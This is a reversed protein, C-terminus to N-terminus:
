ESVPGAVMWVLSRENAIARSDTKRLMM